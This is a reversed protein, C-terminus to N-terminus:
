NSRCVLVDTTSFKEKEFHIEMGNRPTAEIKDSKYLKVPNKLIYLIMEEASLMLRYVYYHERQTAAVSWENPSMHFDFQQIKHKSITTKVEIYRHIQDVDGEFSDIDYGPHYGCCDVIKVRKSLEPFGASVLRIKEHGEVIAEGINGTDKTTAQSNTLVYDIREKHIKPIDCSEKFLQVVDTKFLDPNMQKEVYEYWLSEQASVDATDIYSNTYFRDYNTFFSSDEIFAEISTVQGEKLSYYGYDNKKMLDALVMYDLIDGAYRTVDGKSRPKRKSNFIFSDSKDYYKKHMKRNEIIIQAAEEPTTKGSTIRSDDFVCYTLEESSLSFDKELGKEEYIKTAAMCIKLILQAPKFRVGKRILAINADAKLHGGPFQFSYLFLKFFQTLDQNENLFMAMQSTRTVNREKDEKYFAFLAPTETRWNAITKETANFNGPFYRIANTFKQNYSECDCDEIRCCANALYLLVNEINEKFRPRVFHIRSRFEEPVRYFSDNM